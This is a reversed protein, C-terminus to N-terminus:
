TPPEDDPVAILDYTTTCGFLDPGGGVILCPQGRFNSSPHRGLRSEFRQGQLRIADGISESRWGPFTVRISEPSKLIWDRVRNSIAQRAALRDSSGGFIPARQEINLIKPTGKWGGNSANWVESGGVVIPPMQMGLQRYAMALAGAPTTPDDTRLPVGERASRDRVTFVDVTVSDHWARWSADIVETDTVLAATSMYASPAQILRAAVQGQHQVIVCSGDNALPHLVDAFREPAKEVVMRYTTAVAPDLELAVQQNSEGRDYVNQPLGVRWESPWTLIAGWDLAYSILNIPHGEDYAIAHVRDGPTAAQLTTDLASTLSGSLTGGAFSTGTIYFPTGGTPTVKICYKNSFGKHVGFPLTTAISADGPSYATTVLGETGALHFPGDQALPDQEYKSWLAAELGILELVMPDRFGGTVNNLVGTFVPEVLEGLAISLQLIVGREVGELSVAEPDVVIRMSSGSTSWDPVSMSGWSVSCDLPRLAQVYGARRHSSLHLQASTSGLPLITDLLYVPSRVPGLAVERFGPSWSM